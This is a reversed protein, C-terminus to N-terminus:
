APLPNEDLAKKYYFFAILSLALFLLLPTTYHHEAFFVYLFHSTSIIAIRLYYSIFKLISEYVNDVIYNGIGTLSSATTLVTHMFLAYITKLPLMQIIEYVTDGSHFIYFAIESFTFGIGILFFSVIRLERINHHVLNHFYKIKHEFYLISVEILIFALIVFYYKLNVEVTEVLIFPTSLLVGFLFLSVLTKFPIKKKWETFVIINMLVLSFGLFLAVHIM